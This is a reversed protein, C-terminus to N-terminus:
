INMLILDIDPNCRCAGVADMGNRVVLVDKGLTKIAIELFMESVEDDEAILIKIEKDQNINEEKKYM